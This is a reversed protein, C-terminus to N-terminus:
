YVLIRAFITIKEFKIPLQAYMITKHIKDRIVVSM